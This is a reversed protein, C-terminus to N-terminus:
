FLASVSSQVAQYRVAALHSNAAALNQVVTEAFARRIQGKPVNTDWDRAMVACALVTDNLKKARKEVQKQFTTPIPISTM